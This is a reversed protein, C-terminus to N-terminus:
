FALMVCQAKATRRVFIPCDHAHSVIRAITSRATKRRNHKAVNSLRRAGLSRRALVFAAVWGIVTWGLVLNILFISPADDRNRAKAEIAPALYLALVVLVAVIKLAEYM